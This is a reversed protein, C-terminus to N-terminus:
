CGIGADRPFQYVTSLALAWFAGVFIGTTVPHGPTRLRPTADAGRSERRRFVILAAGTLGFFLADIAVVYNLIRDCRRWGAARFSSCCPGGTSSPRWRTFRTAFTRTSAGVAPRLAALEAYVFAGVLAIAGGTAWAGLILVPSQVYRAVVHPNVFIGAGVIGGMVLMTADFANLRRALAPGAPASTVALARDAADALRLRRM